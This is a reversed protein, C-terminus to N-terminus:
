CWGSGARGTPRRSGPRPVDSGQNASRPRSRRARQLFAPRDHGLRQPRPRSRAGAPRHDALAPVLEQEAEVRRSWYQRGIRAKTGATRPARAPGTRRRQRALHQPERQEIGPAPRRPQEPAARDPRRDDIRHRSRPRSVPRRGAEPRRSRRRSRTPWADARHQARDQPPQEEGPGDGARQVDM